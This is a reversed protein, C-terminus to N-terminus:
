IRDVHEVALDILRDFDIAFRQESEPFDSFMWIQEWTAVLGWRLRRMADSPLASKEVSSSDKLQDAAGHPIHTRIKEIAPGIGEIFSEAWQTVMSTLRLEVEEPNFLDLNAAEVALGLEKKDILLGRYLELLSFKLSMVSVTSTYGIAAVFPIPQGPHASLLLGEGYCAAGVVLLNLRSEINLPRLVDGLHEWTVLASGGLGDPGIFGAPIDGPLPEEGHAEFHVIPPGKLSVDRQAEGLSEALDKPSHCKVYKVKGEPLRESLWQYLALGTKEDEDFLWEIILLYGFRLSLVQNKLIGGLDFSTEEESSEKPM